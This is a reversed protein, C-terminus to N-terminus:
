KKLIFEAIIFAVAQIIVAMQISAIRGKLLIWENRISLLGQKGNDNMAEEHKIVKEDLHQRAVILTKLEQLAADMRALTEKIEKHEQDDNRRRDQVM